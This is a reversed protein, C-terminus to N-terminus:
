QPNDKKKKNYLEEYLTVIENTIIKKETYHFVGSQQYNGIKLSGNSEFYPAVSDTWDNTPHRWGQIHSKMHVFTPFDQKTFVIDEIDLLKIAIGFAVDISLRKPRDTSLLNIYYEEWNKVIVDILEWFDQAMQCKKFYAFASYANPLDNKIFTSRYFTDSPIFQNKFDRVKSTICLERTSFYDWWDSVDSLFLMDADLIVTERYPTTHYLKWRNEIKWQSNIAADGWPIPIINDFVNKYKEPVAEVNDTVLSVSNVRSQTLKITLANVYALTLYDFEPNNQSLILYGKSM